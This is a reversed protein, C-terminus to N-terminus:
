PDVIDGQTSERSKLYPSKCRAAQTRLALILFITTEVNLVFMKNTARNWNHKTDGCGPIWIAVEMRRSLPEKNPPLKHCPASYSSSTCVKM